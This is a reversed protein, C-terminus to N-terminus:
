NKPHRCPPVCRRAKNGWVRHYYCWHPLEPSPHHNDPRHQSANGHHYQHQQQQQKRRPPAPRGRHFPPRGPHVANIGTDAEEEERPPPGPEINNVSTSAAYRAAKDALCLRDAKEVLDEESMNEAGELQARITQPLRRLFIERSLSIEKPKGSADMEDLQLLRALETYAQSPLSDGLPTSMLDLARQARVPVPIDYAKILKARLDEYRLAGTQTQLWPSIKNFVDTPLMSMIMDAKTTECTIKNLRFQCEARMFWAVAADTTFQPLHLKHGWSVHTSTQTTQIVAAAGGTTSSPSSEVDSDAM